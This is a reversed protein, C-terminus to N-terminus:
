WLICSPTSVLVMFPFLLVLHHGPLVYSSLLLKARGLSSPSSGTLRCALAVLKPLLPHLFDVFTELMRQRCYLFINHVM